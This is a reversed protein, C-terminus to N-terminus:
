SLSSQLHKFIYVKPVLEIVMIIFVNMPLLRSRLVLVLMHLTAGLSRLLLRVLVKSFNNEVTIIKSYTM